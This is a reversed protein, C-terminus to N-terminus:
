PEPRINL